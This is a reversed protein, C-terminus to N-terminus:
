YTPMKPDVQLAWAHVGGKLNYLNEFGHQALFNAVSMSRMGHHCICVVPRSDDIDGLRQPVSGMPLHQAGAIACTQFEWAERVDLLLPQERSSDAIWEALAGPEIQNIM